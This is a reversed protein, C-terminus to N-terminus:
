YSYKICVHVEITDFDEKNKLLFPPCVFSTVELYCYVFASFPQQCRASFASMEILKRLLNSRLLDVLTLLSVRYRIALASFVLISDNTSLM